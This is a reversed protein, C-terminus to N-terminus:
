CEVEGDITLTSGTRANFLPDDGLAPSRRWRPTWRRGAASCCRSGWARPPRCGAVERAGDPDDGEPLEGAGGHVILSPQMSEVRRESRGRGAPTPRSIAGCTRRAPSSWTSVSRRRGARGAPLHQDSELECHCAVGVECLGAACPGSSPPLRCVGCACALGSLCGTVQVGEVCPGGIDQPTACVGLAGVGGDGDGSLGQCILGPSCFRTRGAEGFGSPSPPNADCAQGAAVFSTCAVPEYNGCSDSACYGGVCFPAGSVSPNNCDSTTTCPLVSGFSPFLSSCAPGGDPAGADGVGAACSFVGACAPLNEVLVRAMCSEAQLAELCASERQSDYTVRGAAIAEFLAPGPFTNELMNWACNTAGADLTCSETFIWDSGQTMQEVCEAAVYPALAYCKALYNCRAVALASALRDIPVGGDYSVHAPPVQPEGADAPACGDTPVIADVGADAGTAADHATSNGGGCAPLAGALAVLAALNVFM